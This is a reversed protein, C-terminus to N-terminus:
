CSARKFFFTKSFVSLSVPQALRQWVLFVASVFLARVVQEVARALCALGALCDRDKVLLGDAFEKCVLDSTQMARMYLCIQM